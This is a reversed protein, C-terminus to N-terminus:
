QGAEIFRDLERMSFLLHRTARNPKLLGRAILRHMTPASLSLYRAAPLLKLAGPQPESLTKKQHM